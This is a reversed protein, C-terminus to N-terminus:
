GAQESRLEDARKRMKEILMENFHAIRPGAVEAPVQGEKVLEELSHQGVEDFYARLADWGEETTPYQDTM